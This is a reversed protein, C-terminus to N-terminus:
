ENNLCHLTNAWNGETWVVTCVYKDNYYGAGKCFDAPFSYLASIKHGDQLTVSGLKYIEGWIGDFDKGCTPSPPAANVVNSLLVIFM